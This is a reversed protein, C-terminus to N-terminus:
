CHYIHWNNFCKVSKTVFIAKNHINHMTNQLTIIDVTIIRIIIVSCVADILSETNYECM